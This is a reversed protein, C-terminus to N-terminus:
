DGGVGGEGRWGAIGSVGRDGGGGGRDLEGLEGRWGAIGSVGRIQVHVSVAGGPELM